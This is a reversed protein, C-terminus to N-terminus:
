DVMNQGGGMSVTVGTMYSAADSALFAIMNAVEEPLSVRDLVVRDFGSLIANVGRWTKEDINELMKQLRDNMMIGPAVGLVHIGYEGMEYALNRTFGIVGSKAANYIMIEDNVMRGGESAVNIIRGGQNPIMFKLVAHCCYMVQTLVGHITKDIDEKTAEIFQGGHAFTIANNVLIDIKGLCRHSEQMFDQIEQWNNLDAKIPYAKVGWKNTIQHAVNTAGEYNIDIIAVDAGSAALRNATAQGLGPGGAGTIVAKKGSLDMLEPVSKDLINRPLRDLGLQHILQESKGIYDTLHRKKPM